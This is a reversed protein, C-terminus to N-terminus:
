SPIKRKLGVLDLIVMMHADMTILEQDRYAHLVKNVM